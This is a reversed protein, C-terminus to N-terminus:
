YIKSSYQQFTAFDSSFKQFFLTYMEFMGRAKRFRRCIYPKVFAISFHFDHTDLLIAETNCVHKNVKHSYEYFHHFHGHLISAINSCFEINYPYEVPIFCANLSFDSFKIMEQILDGM